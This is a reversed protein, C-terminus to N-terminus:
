EQGRWVDPYLEPAGNGVGHLVGVDALGPVSKEAYNIFSFNKPIILNTMVFSKGSGRWVDPQLEPAMRMGISSGLM